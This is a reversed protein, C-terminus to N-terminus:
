ELLQLHIKMLNQVPPGRTLSFRNPKSPSSYGIGTIKISESAILQCNAVSPMRHKAETHTCEDTHRHTRTNYELHKHDRYRVLWKHPNWCIWLMCANPSLSSSIIHEPLFTLRWPWLSPLDVKGASAFWKVNQIRQFWTSFQGRYNSTLVASPPILLGICVYIYTFWSVQRSNTYPKHKIEHKYSCLV